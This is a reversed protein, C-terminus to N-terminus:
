AATVTELIDGCDRGSRRRWYNRRRSSASRNSRLQRVASFFYPEPNQADGPSFGFRSPRHESRVYLRPWADAASLAIEPALGRNPRRLCRAANAFGPSSSTLGERCAQPSYDEADGSMLDPNRLAAKEFIEGSRHRSALARGSDLSRNGRSFTGRSRLSAAGAQRKGSIANRPEPLRMELALRRCIAQHCLGSRPRFELM